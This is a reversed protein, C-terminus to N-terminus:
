DGLVLSDFCFFASSIVGFLRSIGEPTIPTLFSLPIGVGGRKIHRNNYEPDGNTPCASIYHGPKNCRHCIYGPPLPRSSPVPKNEKQGRHQEAGDIFSVTSRFINFNYPTPIMM